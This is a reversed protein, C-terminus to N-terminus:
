PEGDSSESNWELSCHVDKATRRFRPGFHTSSPFASYPSCPRWRSTAQQPKSDNVNYMWPEPTSSRPNHRCLQRYRSYSCRRIHEEGWIPCAPHVVELSTGCSSCSSGAMARLRSGLARRVQSTASMKCILGGIVRFPLPGCGRRGGELAALPGLVTRTATAPAGGGGPDPYESVRDPPARDFDEHFSKDSCRTSTRVTTGRRSLSRGKQRVDEGGDGASPSRDSPHLRPEKTSPRLQRWTQDAKHNQGSSGTHTTETSPKVFHPGTFQTRAM